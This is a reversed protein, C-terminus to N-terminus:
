QMENHVQQQTKLTSNQRNRLASMVASIQEATIDTQTGKNILWQSIFASIEADTQKHWRDVYQTNQWVCSIGFDAKRESLVEAVKM